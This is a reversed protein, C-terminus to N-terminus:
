EVKSFPINNYVVAAGYEETLPDKIYLYAKGQTVGEKGQVELTYPFTISTDELIVTREGEQEIEIKVQEGNYNSPSTLQCKTKWIGSQTEPSEDEDAGTSITLVISSGIDVLSNPTLSQSIVYGEETSSSARKQINVVLGSDMLDERAQELTQGQVGKVQVQIGENYRSVKLTVIEGKGLTTGAAPNSEIVCGDEVNPDYINESVVVFGMDVLQSQANKLTYNTVEPVTLEAGKSVVYLVTTGPEVSTNAAPDQVVVLGAGYIDSAIEGNYSPVLGSQELLTKAEQETRGEIGPVAVLNSSGNIDSDGGIFEETQPLM